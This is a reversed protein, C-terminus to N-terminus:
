GKTVWQPNIGKESVFYAFRKRLQHIEERTDVDLMKTLPTNSHIAVKKNSHLVDDVSDIGKEYKIKIMNGLLVSKYSITLIFGVILWKLVLVERAKACPRMHIIKVNQCEEVVAGVIVLIGPLFLNTYRLYSSTKCFTIM